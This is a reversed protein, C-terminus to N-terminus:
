AEALFSPEILPFAQKYVLWRAQRHRGMRDTLNVTRPHFPTM